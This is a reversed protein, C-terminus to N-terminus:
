HCDIVILPPMGRVKVTPMSGLEDTNAGIVRAVLEWMKRSTITSSLSVSTLMTILRKVGGAQAILHRRDTM